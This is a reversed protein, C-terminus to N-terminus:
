TWCRTTWSWGSWRVGRGRGRGCGRPRGDSGRDRGGGCCRGRGPRGVPGCGGGSRPCGRCHWGSREEPARGQNRVRVREVVMFYVDRVTRQAPAVRCEALVGQIVEEVEVGLGSRGTDARVTAPALARIDGGSAEFARLYREVSTRSVAGPGAGLDPGQERSREALHQAIARRTRAGAPWGLLPRIVAYRRWAEAREAEPLVHFDAITYGTPLTAEGRATTGPGRVEFRLLGRAWAATLEARTAVMQGGVTQDEVRLRGDQLVQLVVYARGEREYRTGTALHLQGM